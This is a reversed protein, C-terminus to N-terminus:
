KTKVKWGAERKSGKAPRKSVRQAVVDEGDVEGATRKKRKNPTPERVESMVEREAAESTGRLWIIVDYKKPNATGQYGMAKAKNVLDIGDGLWWKKERESKLVDWTALWAAM